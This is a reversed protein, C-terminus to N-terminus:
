AALTLIHKIAEKPIKLVSGPLLQTTVAAKEGSGQVQWIMGIASYLSKM